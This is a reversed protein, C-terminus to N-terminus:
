VYKPYRLGVAFVVVGTDKLQAAALVSNGQSRGDSM